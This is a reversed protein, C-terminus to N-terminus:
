VFFLLKIKKFLFVVYKLNYNNIKIYLYKSFM